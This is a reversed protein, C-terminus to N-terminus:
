YSDIAPVLSQRRTWSKENRRSVLLIEYSNQNYLEQCPVNAKEKIVFNVLNESFNQWRKLVDACNEGGPPLYERLSKNSIKAQKIIWEKKKGQAEGFHRERLLQDTFM